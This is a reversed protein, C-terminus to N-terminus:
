AAAEPTWPRGAQRAEVWARLEDARWGVAGGPGSGLKVPRPFEGAAAKRRITARSYGVAAIVEPERLIRWAPLNDSTTM